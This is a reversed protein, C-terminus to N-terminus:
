DLGSTQINHMRKHNIGVLNQKRLDYLLLNLLLVNTPHSNYTNKKNKHKLVLAEILEEKILYKIM